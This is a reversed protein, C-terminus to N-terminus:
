GTQCIGGCAACHCHERSTVNETDCRICFLGSYSYRALSYGVSFSNDGCTCWDETYFKALKQITSANPSPRVERDMLHMPTNPQGTKYHGQFFYGSPKCEAELFPKCGLHHDSIGCKVCLKIPTDTKLEHSKHWSLTTM